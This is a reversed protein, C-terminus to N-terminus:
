LIKESVFLILERHREEPDIISEINYYRNGFKIRMKATIGKIYRINIKGSIESSIQKSQWYERGILPEISGNVTYYTVWTITPEGTSTQAEVPTQITILNRLQGAQM